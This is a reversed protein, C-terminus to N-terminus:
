FSRESDLENQSPACDEENDGELTLISPELHFIDEGFIAVEHQLLIHLAPRSIVRRLMTGYLDMAFQLNGYDTSINRLENLAQSLENPVCQRLVSEVHGHFRDVLEKKREIEVDLSSSDEFDRHSPQDSSPITPAFATDFSFNTMSIEHKRGPVRFGIIFSAHPGGFIMSPHYEWGKRLAEYLDKGGRSDRYRLFLEGYEQWGEADGERPQQLVGARTLIDLFLGDLRFDEILVERVRDNTLWRLMTLRREEPSPAIEVLVPDKPISFERPGDIDIPFAM